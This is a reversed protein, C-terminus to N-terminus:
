LFSYLWTQFRQFNWHKTRIWEYALDSNARHVLTGGPTYHPLEAAIGKARLWRDFEYGGWHGTRVWQYAFKASVEKFDKKQM